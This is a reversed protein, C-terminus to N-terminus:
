LTTRYSFRHLFGNMFLWSLPSAIIVTFNEGYPTTLTKKIPDGAGFLKEALRKTIVISSADSLATATSGALLPFSFMSLFPADTFSGQAQTKKDAFRLLRNTYIM